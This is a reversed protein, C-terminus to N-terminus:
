TVRSTVTACVVFSILEFIIITITLFNIARPDGVISFMFLLPEVCITNAGAFLNFSNFSVAHLSTNIALFDDRPNLLLFIEHSFFVILPDGVLKRLSFFPASLFSLNISV